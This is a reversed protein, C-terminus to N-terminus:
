QEAELEEAALEVTEAFKKLGIGELSGQLDKLFEKGQLKYFPKLLTAAQKYFAQPRM